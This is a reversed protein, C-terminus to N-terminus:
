KLDSEELPNVNHLCCGELLKSRIVRVPKVSSSGSDSTPNVDSGVNAHTGESLYKTPGLSKATSRVVESETCSLDITVNQLLEALETQHLLRFRGLAPSHEGALASLLQVINSGMEGGGLLWHSSGVSYLLGLIGLHFGLNSHTM